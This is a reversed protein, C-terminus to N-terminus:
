LLHPKIAPEIQTFLRSLELLAAVGSGNDDAGPSGWVSDYHAGILIIEEPQVRGIRSVELNMCEVGKAKYPQPTVEYGQRRWESGIYDAAAWLASPHFVNREGIDSALAKVHHRLNEEITSTDM